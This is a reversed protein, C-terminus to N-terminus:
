FWTKGQTPEVEHLVMEFTCKALKIGVIPCLGLCLSDRNGKGNKEFRVPAGHGEREGLGAGVGEEGGAFDFRGLGVEM